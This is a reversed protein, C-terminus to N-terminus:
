RHGRARLPEGRVPVAAGSFSATDLGDGGRLVDNGTAGALVDNGDGGWIRNAASNGTLVDNFESGILYEVLM